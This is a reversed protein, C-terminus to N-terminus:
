KTSKIAHPMSEPKQARLSGFCIDHRQKHVSNESCTPCYNKKKGNHHRSVIEYDILFPKREQLASKDYKVKHFDPCSTPTLYACGGM